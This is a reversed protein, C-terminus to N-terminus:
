WELDSAPPSRLRDHDGNLLADFEAKVRGIVEGWTEDITTQRFVRMGPYWVVDDRGLTWRWDSEFPVLSWCPVGLGGATHVGANTASIVLDCAAIQSASAVLDKLPDVTSDYILDQDLEDNVERIEQEVDGYQVCVFTVGPVKLIPLLDRAQFSRRLRRLAASGGRWGVGVILNGGYAAKYKQRLAQSLEPNPQLFPRNRGFLSTSRRLYRGLSGIPVFYDIDQNDEYPRSERNHFIQTGPFARKYLDTVRKTGELYVKDAWKVVDSVMTAFMIEDGVGQESHIAISKGTLDEGEWRPQKFKRKLGRGRKIQEFGTEYLDFGPGWHGLALLQMALGSQNKPKEAQLRSSRTYTKLARRYDGARMWANWYARALHISRPYLVIKSELFAIANDFEGARALSSAYRSMVSINKPFRKYQAEAVALAERHRENAHAAKVYADVAKDELPDLDLAEQARELAGEIDGAQLTLGSLAAIGQATKAGFRLGREFYKTVLDEKGILDYANALNEYAQLHTPAEYLARQFMKLSKGYREQERLQTGYLSWLSHDKKTFKLGGRLVREAAAYHGQTALVDSYLMWAKPDTKDSNVLERALKEAEKYRGFNKYAAGLYLPATRDNPDLSVLYRMVGLAEDQKGAGALRLVLQRGCQNMDLGFPKLKKLQQLPNVSAHEWVSSATMFLYGVALEPNTLILRRIEQFLKKTRNKTALTEVVMARPGDDTPQITVARAAERYYPRGFHQELLAQVYYPRGINPATILARRNITNAEEFKETAFLLAARSRLAENSLPSVLEAQRSLREANAINGSARSHTTATAYASVYQPDLVLAAKLCLAAEAHQRSSIEPLSRVRWAEANAPALRISRTAYSRAGAMKGRMFQARALLTYLDNLPLQDASQHILAEAQGPMNLSFFHEVQEKVSM